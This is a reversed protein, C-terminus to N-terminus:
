RSLPSTTVEHSYVGVFVHVGQSPIGFIYYPENAGPYLPWRLNIYVINGTWGADQALKEAQELDLKIPLPIIRDELWPSDVHQPPLEIQGMYNKLIVTSNPQTSPDNFVFQWPSGPMGLDLDAEYFEAGPYSQQVIANAENLMDLFTSDAGPKTTDAVTSYPGAALVLLAVLATLILTRKM